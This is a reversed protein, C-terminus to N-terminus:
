FICHLAMSNPDWHLDMNCVGMKYVAGGANYRYWVNVNVNEHARVESHQVIFRGNSQRTVRKIHMYGLFCLIGCLLPTSQPGRCRWFHVPGDGGESFIKLMAIKIWFSFKNIWFLNAPVLYSANSYKAIIEIKQSSKTWIDSKNM